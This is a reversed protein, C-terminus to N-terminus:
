HCENVLFLSVLLHKKSHMDGKSPDDRLIRTVLIKEERISQFWGRPRWRTATQTAGPVVTTNAIGKHSGLHIYPVFGDPVL